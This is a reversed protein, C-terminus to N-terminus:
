EEGGAHPRECKKRRLSIVGRRGVGEVEDPTWIVAVGLLEKAAPGYYARYLETAKANVPPIPRGGIAIRAHEDVYAIRPKEDYIIRLGEVIDCGNGILHYLQQVTWGKQDEVRIHTLTGNPDIKILTGKAM